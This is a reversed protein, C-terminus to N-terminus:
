PLDNWPVPTVVGSEYDSRLIAYGVSNLLRGDATHWAQRYHCEKVWGCREFARRMAINDRRTTGEFRHVAPYTEFVHRTAASLAVAGLSRGRAREGLRLDLMPSDPLDEFRVIGLRGHPDHDIWFTDNESDRSRGSHIARTIERRSLRTGIHFPWENAALFDTLASRDTGTPDLRTLTSSM